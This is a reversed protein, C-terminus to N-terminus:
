KSEHNVLSIVEQVLKVQYPHADSGPKGSIVVIGGNPHFYKRHSGKGPSLTFGAKRLRKELLGIKSPM